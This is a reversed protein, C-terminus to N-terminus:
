VSIPFGFMAQVDIFGGINYDGGTRIVYNVVLFEYLMFVIGWQVINTPM